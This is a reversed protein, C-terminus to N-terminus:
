FQDFLFLFIDGDELILRILKAYKAKDYKDEHKEVLSEMFGGFSEINREVKGEEKEAALSRCVSKVLEVKEREFFEKENEAELVKIVIEAVSQNWFYNIFQPLQAGVIKIMKM